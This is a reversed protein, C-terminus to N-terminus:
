SLVNEECRTFTSGNFHRCPTQVSQIINRRVIHSIILPDDFTSHIENDNHEAIFYNGVGRDYESKEETHKGCREQTTKRGKCSRNGVSCRSCFLGVM